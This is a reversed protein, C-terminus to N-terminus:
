SGENMRAKALDGLVKSAELERDSQASQEEFTQKRGALLTDAEQKQLRMATTARQAEASANLKNARARDLELAVQAAEAQAQQSQAVEEPTNLLNKSNIDQTDFVQRALEGGKVHMDRIREPLYQLTEILRMGRIEKAVLSMSKDIVVTTDGLIDRTPKFEYNWEVLSSIVSETYRDISRLMNRLTMNAAGAIQSVGGVTRMAEGQVNGMSVPPIMSEDDMLDKWMNYVALLDPIRSDISVNRIAPNDDQNLSNNEREFVQFSKLTKDSGPRLKQTDIEVMPGCVVASNDSIQRAAACIGMQSDRVSEPFSEGVIRSDDDPDLIFIHYYPVDVPYPSTRIKIVKDDLLVVELPASTSLSQKPVDFGLDELEQGSMYGYFSVLEYYDGDTVRIEEDEDMQKQYNPRAYNGHPNEELWKRITDSEYVSDEDDDDILNSIDHRALRITRFMKDMSRINPASMDPYFDWISVYEFEPVNEDEYVPVYQGSSPEIEWKRRTVSNTLPGCAIGVGYMVGSKIVRNLTAEYDMEKLQDTVRNKLNDARERALKHIAKEIADPDGQVQQVIEVLDDNQISPVPSPEIDFNRESSLDILRSILHLGKVRTVRPYTHSRDAPIACEIEPDYIGKWQRYSRLWREELPLRDRKIREFEARLASGLKELKEKRSEKAM